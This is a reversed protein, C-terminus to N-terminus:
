SLRQNVRACQPATLRDLEDETDIILLQHFLRFTGWPHYTYRATQGVKGKLHSSIDKPLNCQRIQLPFWVAWDLPCPAYKCTNMLRIARVHPGCNSSGEGICRTRRLKLKCAYQSSLQTVQQLYVRCTEPLNMGTAKAELFQTNCSILRSQLVSKLNDHLHLIAEEPNNRRTPRTLVSTESSRLVEKM